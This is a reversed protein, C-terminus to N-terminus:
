TSIVLMISSIEVSPENVLMRQFVLKGLNRKQGRHLYYPCFFMITSRLLFADSSMPRATGKNTKKILVKCGAKKAAEKAADVAEKVEARDAIKEARAQLEVAAEQAKEAAVELVEKAKEAAKGAVKKAADLIEEKKAM